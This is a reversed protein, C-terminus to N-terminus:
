GFSEAEVDGRAEGADPAADAEEDVSCAGRACGIWAQQAHRRPGMLGPRPEDLIGHEGDVVERALLTKGRGMEIHDQAEGEECGVDDRCDDFAALRRLEARFGQHTAGGVQGGVPALLALEEAERLDATRSNRTRPARRRCARGHARADVPRLSRM